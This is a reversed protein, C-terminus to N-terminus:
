FGGIFGIQIIPNSYPSLPTQNLNFMGAAICYFNDSIPYRVGGGVLVNDVWVRENPNFAYPNDRNIHDWGAQAFVNEFIFYRGYLRSGILNTSYKYNSYTYSYYNYIVGVGASFKETIKYGVLPSLDVFTPNGIWAGVNGGWFFRDWSFSSEPKEKKDKKLSKKSKSNDPLSDNQALGAHMTVIFFLLLVYTKFSVFPKPM